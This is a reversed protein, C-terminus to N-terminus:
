NYVVQKTKKTLTKTEREQEKGACEDGPRQLVTPSRFRFSARRGATRSAAAPPMQSASRCWGLAAAVGERQWRRVPELTLRGASHAARGRQWTCLGLLTKCQQTCATLTCSGTTIDRRAQSSNYAAMHAAIHAAIHAAKHASESATEGGGGQRGSLRCM